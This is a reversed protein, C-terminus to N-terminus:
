DSERTSRLLRDNVADWLPEDPPREVILVDCQAEDLEHLAAYLGRAYLVPDRPLRRAAQAGPLALGGELALLAFRQPAADSSLSRAVEPVDTESVLWVPTAPAYHRASLGPSAHPTTGSDAAAYPSRKRVPEGLVQAIQDPTIHGPRLVVPQETTLDVVTSEVGVACPGGDLILGVRDGLGDAVHQATTPSLETFRNASPAAIPLGSTRLLALTGEHAPIRLAITAAGATVIDPVHDAKKLVLTLPGPWFASALLSAREPWDAVLAQAAAVDAVHVILPNWAPRSKAEYIRAIAQADLAHAGLGYVTETPIAVLEGRRLRAAADALTAPTIAVIPIPTRM